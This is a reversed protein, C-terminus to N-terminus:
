RTEPGSPMRPWREQFTINLRRIENEITKLEIEVAKIRKIIKEYEKIEVMEWGETSEFLM